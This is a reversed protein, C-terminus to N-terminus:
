NNSGPDVALGSPLLEGVGAVILSLIAFDFEALRLRWRTLRGSSETLNMLWRLSDHDTRVTFSTGEIYPRLSTIAWVVAQCERETPLYNKEAPIM